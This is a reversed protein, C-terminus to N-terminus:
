RVLLFSPSFHRGFTKNRFLTCMTEVISKGYPYMSSFQAPIQGKCNTHTAHTDWESGKVFACRDVLEGDLLGM